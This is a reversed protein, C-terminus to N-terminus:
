RGCSSTNSFAKRSHLKIRSKNYELLDGATIWKDGSGYMPTKSPLSELFKQVKCAALYLDYSSGNNESLAAYEKAIENYKKMEATETNM